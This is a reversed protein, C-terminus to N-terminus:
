EAKVRLSSYSGPTVVGVNFHIRKTLTLTGLMYKVLYPGVYPLRALSCTADTSNPPPVEPTLDTLDNLAGDRVIAEHWSRM